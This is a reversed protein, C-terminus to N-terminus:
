VTNLGIRISPEIREEIDANLIGLSVEVNEFPETFWVVLLEHVGPNDPVIVSAPISTKNGEKLLGYYVYESSNYELPIQKYDLFQIVGFARQNEEFNGINIYYHLKQGRTVNETFWGKPSCPEKTLMLGELTDSKNCFIDPSRLEPFPYSGSGVIVNLRIRGMMAFDTDLRFDTDLSHKYPNLFAGVVIDHTGAPLHNLKFSYFSDEMPNLNVLHTLGKQGEVYFPVMLYDVLIFLLYQNSTYMANEVELYGKFSENEKLFQTLNM